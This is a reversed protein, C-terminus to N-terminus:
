SSFENMARALTLVNVARAGGDILVRAIEGATSGTTMVDDVVLAVRGEVLRPARVRFAKELSRARERAGMGARHRETKKVRILATSNLRLGTLSVLERAIVEAQNFGREALRASHLPVPIISEILGSQPLAAFTQWLGDRLRAPVQPSWKLRLVTERMAGEYPGCSRVFDFAFHDCRGCRRDAVDISPGVRSAPPRLPASCRACFDGNLVKQEVERWCDSCAVGDRWSEIVEGCVRCGIPYLTAVAADRLAASLRAAKEIFKKLAGTM